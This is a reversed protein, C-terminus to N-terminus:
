RLGAVIGAAQRRHLMLHFGFMCHWQHATFPGFIPHPWTATRRLDGLEAVSKAHNEVSRRFREIQEPGAGSSPLVDRKPDISSEFDEGKALAETIATMAGNVITNHELLMFLSWNRMDEDVGIMPPVTVPRAADVEAVSEVLALTKRAEKELLRNAAARSTLSFRTRIITRILSM